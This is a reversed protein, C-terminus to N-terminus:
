ASKLIKKRISTANRNSLKLHKPFYPSSYQGTIATVSGTLRFIKKTNHCIFSTGPYASIFGKLLLQSVIQECCNAM